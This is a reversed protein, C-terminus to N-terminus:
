ALRRIFPQIIFQFHDTLFPDHALKLYAYELMRRSPSFLVVFSRLSSLRDDPGLHVRYSEFLAFASLLTYNTTQLKYNTTQLSWKSFM